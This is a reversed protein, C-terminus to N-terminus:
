FATENQLQRKKYWIEIKFDKFLCLIKRNSIKYSNAHTSFVNVKCCLQFTSHVVTKEREIM